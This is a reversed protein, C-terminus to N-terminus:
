CEVLIVARAVFKAFAHGIAVPARPGADDSLWDHKLEGWVVREVVVVRSSFGWLREDGSLGAPLEPAPALGDTSVHEGSGGARALAASFRGWEDASIAGRVELRVV